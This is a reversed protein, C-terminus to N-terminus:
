IQEESCTKVEVYLEKILNKMLKGAPNRPLSNSTLFIQEPIKFAALQHKIHTLLDSKSFIEPHHTNIVAVVREGVVEDHAGVVCVEIVEPFTSICNEVEAASINEGARNIVDKKRDVIYLMDFEDLYGIDGTALWGDKDLSNENESSGVYQTMLTVSKIQIEGIEKNPLESGNDDVVRVQM